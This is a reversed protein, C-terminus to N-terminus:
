APLEECGDLYLCTSQPSGCTTPNNPSSNCQSTECRNSCNFISLFYDGGRVHYMEVNNLRSITEKKLSLKDTLNIKKM